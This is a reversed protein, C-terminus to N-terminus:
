DSFKAKRKELFANTGERADKTAMVSAFAQREFEIGGSLGTEYAMNVSRKAHALAMQSHRAVKQALKLAEEILKEPPHVATFIGRELAQQASIPEGTLIMEMAQAKSVYRPLRQTGGAGPILGLKVEPLGM